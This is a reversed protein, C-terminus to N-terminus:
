LAQRKTQKWKKGEEYTYLVMYGDVECIGPYLINQLIKQFTICDNLYGRVYEKQRYFATAGYTNIDCDIFLVKLGSVARAPALNVAIRAEGAKQM